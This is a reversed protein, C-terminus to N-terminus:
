QYLELRGLVLKPVLTKEQNPVVSQGVVTANIRVREIALGM